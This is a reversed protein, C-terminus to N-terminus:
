RLEKSKYTPMKSAETNSAITELTTNGKAQADAQARYSEAMAAMLLTVNEETKAQADFLAEYAESDAEQQSSVQAALQATPSNEGTQVEQEAVQLSLMQSLLETIQENGETIALTQAETALLLPDEQAELELIWRDVDGLVQNFIDAYPATSGFLESALELYGTAADQFRERAEADDELTETLAAAEIAAVVNSYESSALNLRAMPSLTSLNENGLLELRFEKLKKLWGMVSALGDEEADYRDDIAQQLAMQRYTELEALQEASAGWAVFKTRLDDFRENILILPDVETFENRLDTLSDGIQQDFIANIYDVAESMGAGILQIVQNIAEIRGQLIDAGATGEVLSMQSELHQRQATLDAVLANADAFYRSITGARTALPPLEDRLEVGTLESIWEEMGDSVWSALDPGFIQSSANILDDGFFRRARDKLDGFFEDVIADIETFSLTEISERFSETVRRAENAWLRLVTAVEESGEGYLETARTLRIQWTRDVRALAADLENMEAIQDEFSWDALEDNFNAQAMQLAIAERTMGNLQITLQAIPDAGAEIAENLTQTTEARIQTIQRQYDSMNRQELAERESALSQQQTALINRVLARTARELATTRQDELQNLQEVTANNRVLIERQDDYTQNIDHAVRGAESMDELDFSLQNDALIDTIEQLQAAQDELGDYYADSVGALRLLAAIQAQGSETTADLSQMLNWMEERTAPVTLGVQEFASTIEDQAIAFRHSEPAFNTVFSQMGSIFAEIGGAAEVLGVSVQAMAEPGLTTDFVFGLQRIAERTVQVSTAVRVLTEGLGEGVQQFQAVFPVVAGALDDFISSFVAELEAQAEEGSLDMTSIRIEEIRFAEIAANVSDLDLGLAIAGERVTDAMSELVLAFQASVDDSLDSFRDFDRSSGFWGGSRHISAYSQVTIDEIMASLTGGVIRIGQDRLSEKGGFINSLGRSLIGGLLQDAILGILGGGIAVLATSVGSSLGSSLSVPGTDGAGRALLGSAGSIGKQMSQLATLMGRNIGVLESTADATIQIANAISESKASSDGLITGTGQRQQRMEASDASPGGGGSFAPIAAGIAALLPTVAAAMAAMRAFATYPEGTGQNVVALAGKVAALAVAAAQVVSLVAAVKQLTKQEKSGEKAIGALANAVGAMQGALEGYMGITENKLQDTLQDIRKQEKPDIIGDKKAQKQLASIGVKLQGIRQIFGLVPNSNFAEQMADRVIDLANTVEEVGTAADAFPLSQDFEKLKNTIELQENLQRQNEVRDKFAPDNLLKNFVEQDGNAIRLAESYLTFEKESMGVMAIQIRTQEATKAMAEATFEFSEALRKRAAVWDTVGKKDRAELKSIKDLGDAYKKFPSVSDKIATKVEEGALAFLIMQEQLETLPHKADAASKVLAEFDVQNLSAAFRTGEDVLSKIQEQLPTLEEKSKKINETTLEVSQALKIQGEVASIATKKAEELSDTGYKESLVKNVAEGGEELQKLTETLDKIRAEKEEITDFAGQAEIGRNLAAQFDEVAKKSKELEAGVQRVPEMVERLPKSLDLNSLTEQLDSLGLAAAMSTPMSTIFGAISSILKVFLTDAGFLSEILSQVSQDLIGIDDAAKFMAYATENTKEITILYVQNLAAVERSHQGAAQALAAEAVFAKDAEKAREAYLSALDEQLGSTDYGTIQDNNGFMPMAGMKKRAEIEKDIQAVEAKSAEIIKEKAAVFEPYYAISKKLQEVTNALKSDSMARIAATAEDASTTFKGLTQHMGEVNDTAEGFSPAMEKLIALFGENAWGSPTAMAWADYLRSLGTVVTPLWRALEVIGELMKTLFHTIQESNAQLWNTIDELLKSIEEAAGAFADIGIVKVVDLLNDWRVAVTERISEAVKETYGNITRLETSMEKLASVANGATLAILSPLATVRVLKKLEDNSAAGLGTLVRTFKETETEGLKVAGAYKELVKAGEKSPAELSLLIQRLGTGATSARIGVNSLQALAAATTEFDLGAQAALPGVYKMSLGLDEVTAKSKNATFALIDVYRALENSGGGFAALASTAINAADELELSGVTALNLVHELNGLVQGSTQGSRALVEAAESVREMSHETEEALRVIEGRVLQAANSMIGATGAFVEGPEAMLVALRTFRLEFDAGLDILARFARVAGYMAASAAATAGVVSLFAGGVGRLAGSLAGTALKGVHLNKIFNVFQGSNLADLATETQRLEKQLSDLAAAKLRADAAGRVEVASLEAIERKLRDIPDEAARAAQAMRAMSDEYAKVSPLARGMEEVVESLEKELASVASAFVRADEASAAEISSLHRLKNQLADIPSISKTTAQQALKLAAEYDKYQSTAAQAALGAERTATELVQLGRGYETKDIVGKEMLLNLADLKQAYQAAPGLVEKTSAGVLKWADITAQLGAAQKYQADTLDTYASKMRLLHESSKNLAAVEEKLKAIHREQATGVDTAKVRMLEMARTYEDSELKGEDLYKTLEKTIKAQKQTATMIKEKIQAVRADEDAVKKALIASEIMEKNSERLSAVALGTEKAVSKKLTALLRDASAAENAAKTQAAYSDTLAVLSTDLRKLAATLPNMSEMLEKFPNNKGFASEIARTAEEVKDGLGLIKKGLQDLTAEAADGDIRIEISM